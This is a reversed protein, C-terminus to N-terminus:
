TPEPMVPCEAAQPKAKAARGRAKKWRAKAAKRAIAKRREAKADKWRKRALDQMMASRSKKGYRKWAARGGAAGLNQMSALYKETAEAAKEIAVEDVQLGHSAGTRMVSLAEQVRQHVREDDSPVVILKCELAEILGALSFDTLARHAKTEKRSFLKGAYGFQFGALADIKTMNLGLEDKRLRFANLLDTM